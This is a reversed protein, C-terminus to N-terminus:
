GRAVPVRTTTSASEEAVPVRVELIGDKYSAAVDGQSAGKPLPLDRRFSGYRHETRIYDRGETREEERREGSLHLVDGEVSVEIDKEPDVGPFEVRVVLEGKETFEEVRVSDLGREPWLLVPRRLMEPWDDFIRDLVDFRRTPVVTKSGDHKTLAM